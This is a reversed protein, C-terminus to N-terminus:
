DIFSIFGRFVNPGICVNDHPHCASVPFQFFESLLAVIFLTKKGKKIKIEYIFM